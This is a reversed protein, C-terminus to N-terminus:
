FLPYLFPAVASSQTVIMLIGLALLVVAMPILWWLRQAWLFQLLETMISIRSRLRRLIRPKM